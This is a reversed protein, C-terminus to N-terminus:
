VDLGVKERNVPLFHKDLGVIQPRFGGKVKLPSWM